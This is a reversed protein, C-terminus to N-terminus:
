YGIDDPPDIEDFEEETPETFGYENYNFNRPEDTFYWSWMGGINADPHFVSGDLVKCQGDQECAYDHLEKWPRLKLTPEPDHQGEKFVNRVFAKLEDDSEELFPDDEQINGGPLQEVKSGRRNPEDISIFEETISEPEDVPPANNWVVLFEEFSKNLKDSKKGKYKVKFGLEEIFGDFYEGRWDGDNLSWWGLVKGDESCFGEIEGLAYKKGNLTINGDTSVFYIKEM